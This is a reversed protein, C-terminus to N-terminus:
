HRNEIEAVLMSLSATTDQKYTTYMVVTCHVTRVTGPPGELLVAKPRNREVHERTRKVLADYVEPHQLPIMITEQIEKKVESYGALNNWTMHKQGEADRAQYVEIGLGRLEETPDAGQQQEQQPQQQQPQRQRHQQPSASGLPPWSPCKWTALLREYGELILLVDVSSFGGDKFLTVSPEPYGRVTMSITGAAATLWMVVYLM